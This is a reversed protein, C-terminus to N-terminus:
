RSKGSEDGKKAVVALLEVTATLRPSLYVNEQSAQPSFSLNNTAIMKPFRQLAALFEVATAYTGGMKLEIPLFEYPLEPAEKDKAGKANEEKKGTETSKVVEGTESNIKVAGGTTKATKQKAKPRIELIDNGTGTALNEIQKLFTPIYAADPLSPELFEIQAQLREFKGKLEPIRDIKERVNALRGREGSLRKQLSAVENGKKRYVTAGLGILCVAAVVLLAFVVKRDSASTM